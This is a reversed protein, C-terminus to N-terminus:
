GVAAASLKPSSTVQDIGSHRRNDDRNQSRQRALDFEEHLLQVSRRLDSAAVKLANTAGHSDIEHRIGHGGLLTGARVTFESEVSLLWLLSVDDDTRAGIAKVEVTSNDSTQTILTGRKEPAFSNRIEVPILGSAVPALTKPHIVKAGAEALATAEAYSLEAITKADPVLKPDATMVGDVDTWIIVSEADLCSGIITASYDSGGRGLTTPSGEPTSGIFGTIVPVVGAAILPRLTTRIRARSAFLDVEAEGFDPTTVILATADVAVAPVGSEVLASALLRAALREGTALLADRLRSQDSGSEAIADCINGAGSALTKLELQLERCDAQSSVLAHAICSHRCQLMDALQTGAFPDGSAARDGAALIANTVGSMASVVVVPLCESASLTIIRSARRFCDADGVSTGGFKMVRISNNRRLLFVEQALSHLLLNM